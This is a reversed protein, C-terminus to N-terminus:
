CSGKKEGLVEYTIPLIGIVVLIESYLIYFKTVNNNILLSISFLIIIVILSMKNLKKRREKSKIPKKVTDSPAYKSVLYILAPNLIILTLNTVEIYNSLNYKCLIPVGIYLLLTSVFCVYYNQLHVGGAYLKLVGMCITIILTEKFVGFYNALLLAVVIKFITDLVIYMGYEVEQIKLNDLENNKTLKYTVKHTIKELM